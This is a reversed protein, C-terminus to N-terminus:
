RRATSALFDSVAANWAEPQEFYPSHGAGPIEVVRGDKFLGAVERIAPPPMLDDDAGVVCLVPM